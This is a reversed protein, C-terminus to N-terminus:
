TTIVDTGIFGIEFIEDQRLVGGLAAPARYCERVCGALGVARSPM